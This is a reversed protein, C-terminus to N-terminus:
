LSIASSRVGSCRSWVMRFAARPAALGRQFLATAHNRGAAQTAVIPTQRAMTISIESSGSCSGASDSLMRHSDAGGGVATEDANGCPAAPDGDDVDPELVAEYADVEVDAPHVPLVGNGVLIDLDGTASADEDAGAISLLYEGAMLEITDDGGPVMIEAPFSLVNTPKDIGRFRQNM